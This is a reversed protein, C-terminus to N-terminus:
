KDEILMCAFISLYVITDIIRGRIPETISEPTAPNRQLARLIAKIHKFFYVAWVQYKTLGILDAGEKFNAHADLKSAYDQSKSEMTKLCEDFLEKTHKLRDEYNM